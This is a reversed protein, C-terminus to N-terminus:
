GFTNSIRFQLLSRFFLTERLPAFPAFTRFYQTKRQTSPTKARYCTKVEIPEYLKLPLNESRPTYSDLITLRYWRVHQRSRFQAPKSQPSFVLSFGSATKKLLM